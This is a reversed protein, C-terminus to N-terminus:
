NDFSRNRQYPTFPRSQKIEVFGIEVKIEHKALTELVQYSFCVKEKAKLSFNKNEHSFSFSLAHAGDRSFFGKMKQVIEATAQKPLVLNVLLPVEKQEGSDRALFLCDAKIKYDVSSLEPQKEKDGKIICVEGKMCAASVKKYVSPFVIIEYRLGCAEQALLFAMKEGKKTLIVKSELILACLAAPAFCNSIFAYEDLPHASVYFGIAEKERSLREALTWSPCASFEYSLSTSSTPASLANGFIGMQGTRCAEKKEQALAIIQELETIKQERTGPFLDCAGSTILNELVRKNVVRLDVRTCMDLLDVFPKKEREACIYDLATDGVSKIGRLGFLIGGDVAIFEKESKNVDPPFISIGEEKADQLYFSQKEPDNTEFSIVCAMFEKPYHAKLYATQYAILAYATSHSKNFGYGAFHAMLDFLESAKLADLKNEIAGKVFEEKQEAMVEAKKKGMARRLIDSKGLSYGAIVSAIKMVQEQYVIVGYTEELIPALQEFLYTTQKRGHKREIYDDVMGSGLPGPRYLANVAILDEIKEPGLKRLVDKIGDSEFQFIANTRGRKLLAFTKEDDLPLRDLDIEKGYRKKIQDITKRIITLNKLGLLDIKLYGLSELETMAYQTVADETKSPIYLPLVDKLAEPSIVIGAAHKSAHRTIGELRKSIKILDAVRANQSIMQSLEQSEQIAEDITIKLQEPVLNTIAQADIFSFGLVRAVDKIVGKAMMTGFTIIQCVADRGYKEKVYSIVEERREVCFDIDIDPMSIREPNLFREFLLQYRLPDVNTIGIVWAVLSGAASGRGPGVAIDKSKAWRIFDSVVLFYGVFGSSIILELEVELQKQYMEYSPADILNEQLKEKLGEQCLQTFYQPPTTNSPLQFQPFHLKGFEFSFECRDAITGTNWIAEEKEPFAELMERTTKLHGKFDGFSYRDPNSLVDKTQISLMVEHAQRDDPLLYHADNTAILPISHEKAHEFLLANTEKQISHDEPMVELFFNEKGFLDSFWKTEQNAKEKEGERLLSPIYGGVCATSAILGKSYKELAAKDVRPKFYFGEQYSYAMLRCLNKYGQADQVILLLHFYKEKANKVSIDPTFYMEAGLIPKVGQKRAAQFFKVAGFINGHDSIGVAKWEEKKAFNILDSLKIAGDLLSFETHLHLQTFHKSM